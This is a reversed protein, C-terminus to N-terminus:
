SRSYRPHASGGMQGPTNGLAFRAVYWQGNNIPHFLSYRPHEGTGYVLLSPVCVGPCPRSHVDTDVLLANLAISHPYEFFATNADGPYM